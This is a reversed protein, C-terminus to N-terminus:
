AEFYVLHDDAGARRMGAEQFVGLGETNTHATEALVRTVEPHQKAFAIIARLAEPGYGEGRASDVISFSVHVNGARDPEGWVFGCGGVAKGDSRRVIQYATWPALERGEAQATVVLGAAVLTADTPYDPAWRDELPRQGHVIAAADHVSLPVLRLRPTDIGDVALSHAM